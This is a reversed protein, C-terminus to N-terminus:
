NIRKSHFISTMEQWFGCLWTIICLGLSVGGLRPHCGWYVYQHSTVVNHMYIHVGKHCILTRSQSKSVLGCFTNQANTIWQLNQKQQNKKIFIIHQFDTKSGAPDIQYTDTCVTNSIIRQTYSYILSHTYSRATLRHFNNEIRLICFIFHM